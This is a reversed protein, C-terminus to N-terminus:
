NVTVNQAVYRDGEFRTLVTVEAAPRLTESVAVVSPDLYIDYTKGDTASNVVLLGARLDLAVVHGVFTVSAGPSALISVEQAVSSGDKQSGFRVGVLSGRVLASASSAHGRDELRTQSTVHLKLPRPSLLDRVMLEGTASRYSVVIGQSEGATATKVRINRAFIASGDLVTDISVRDGARLDSVSAEHGDNYIRTRPDFYVKMKGGGFVQVTFQDRVRNLKVITGGILSAKRSRLSPLAPLLSAPDLTADPINEPPAGPEIGAAPTAVMPATPVSPLSGVSQVPAVQGYAASAFVTGTLAIKAAAKSLFCGM